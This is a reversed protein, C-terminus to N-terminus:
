ACITRASRLHQGGSGLRSVPLARRAPVQLRGLCVKDPVSWGSPWARTVVAGGRAIGNGAGVNAAEPQRPLRKGASARALWAERHVFKHIVQAFWEPIQACRPSSAPSERAAAGIGPGDGPHINDVGQARFFIEFHGCAIMAIVTLFSFM